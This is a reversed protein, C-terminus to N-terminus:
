GNSVIAGAFASADKVKAGVDAVAIVSVIVPTVNVTDPVTV